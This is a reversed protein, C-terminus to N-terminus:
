SVDNSLSHGALVAAVMMFSLLVTALLKVIRAINKNGVYTPWIVEAGRSMVQPQM